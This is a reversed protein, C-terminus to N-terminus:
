IKLYEDKLLTEIDIEEDEEEYLEDGEGYDSRLRQVIFDDGQNEGFRIIAESLTMERVVDYSEGISGDDGQEAEEDFEDGEAESSLVEEAKGMLESKLEPTMEPPMASMLTNFIYKIASDDIGRSPMEKLFNALKGAWKQYEEDEESLPADDDTDGEMYESDDFKEEEDFEDPVVDPKGGLGGGQLTIDGKAVYKEEELVLLNFKHLGEQLNESVLKEKNQPGYLYSFDAESQGGGGNSSKIYYRGSEKILGLVKGGVKKRKIINPSEFDPQTKEEMLREIKAIDLYHLM